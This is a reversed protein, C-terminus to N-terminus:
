IHPKVLATWLEYGKPSLHLDDQVFLEPRPKGDEGLMPTFVDIFGLRKADTQTFERVLRNAERQTDM